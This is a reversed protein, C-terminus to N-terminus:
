IQGHEVEFPNIFDVGCRQFDSENRTVVTLNHYAATAALLGDIPAINAHHPMRGWTDAVAVTLPLIRKGFTLELSKLWRELVQAQASDKARCNEIGKRIEGITLVSLHM